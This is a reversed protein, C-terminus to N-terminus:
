QIAWMNLSRLEVSSIRAEFGSRIEWQRCRYKLRYAFGLVAVKGFLV